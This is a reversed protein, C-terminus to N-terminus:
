DNENNNKNEKLYDFFDIYIDVTDEVVDTVSSQVMMGLGAAAVAGVGVAAVKGATNDDDIGIFNAVDPLNNSVWAGTILAAAAGAICGVIMSSIRPRKGIFRITMIEDMDFWMAKDRTYFYIRDEGIQISEVDLLYIEEDDQIVLEIYNYRSRTKRYKNTKM